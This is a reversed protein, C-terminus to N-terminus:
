KNFTSILDEVDAPSLQRTREGRLIFHLRATQELEEARDAAESLSSGACILGHNRLLVCHHGAAVREIAAALDHSGPRFYPLVALPAVRMYYYPTLPQLSQDGEFDELCSLAVAYTSHLHVVACAEPRRRYIATHFPHEKSPKNEDLLNGSLDVRALKDPSLGRLPLGTPTVWVDDGVRASINGTSGHAYGREYLNNAVDCLQELTQETM